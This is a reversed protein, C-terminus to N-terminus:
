GIGDRSETESPRLRRLASSPLADFDDDRHWDHAPVITHRAAAIVTATTPRGDQFPRRGVGGDGVVGTDSRSTSTPM